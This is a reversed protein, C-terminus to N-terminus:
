QKRKFNNFDRMLSGSQRFIALFIQPQLFVRGRAVIAFKRQILFAFISFMFFETIFFTENNLCNNNVFQNSFVQKVPHGEIDAKSYYKVKKKSLANQKVRCVQSYALDLLLPPTKCFLQEVNVSFISCQFQVNECANKLYKSWM